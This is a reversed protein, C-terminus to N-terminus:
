QKNPQTNKETKGDDGDHGHPGGLTILTFDNMGQGIRFDRVRQQPVRLPESGAQCTTCLWTGDSGYHRWGATSKPVHCGKCSM